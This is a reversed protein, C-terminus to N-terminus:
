RHRWANALRQRNKADQRLRFREVDAETVPGRKGRTRELTAETREAADPDTVGSPERPDIGPRTHGSPEVGDGVPTRWANGLRTVMRHYAATAGKRADAISRDDRRQDAMPFTETESVKQGRWADCMRGIWASRAEQRKAVETDSLMAYGPRWPTAGDMLLMPVRVREGDRAEDYGVVLADGPWRRAKKM